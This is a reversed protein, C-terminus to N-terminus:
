VTGTLDSQSSSSSDSGTTGSGSTGSGNESSGSDSGSTGSGSQGQMQSYGGGMQPMGGQTSVQSSGGSITGAILGGALGGVLGCLLALASLAAIVSVKIGQWSRPTKTKAGPQNVYQGQQPNWNRQQNWDGQSPVQQGPAYAGQSPQAYPAHPTQQANGGAANISSEAYDGQPSALTVRPSTPRVPSAQQGAHASSAQNGPNSAFSQPAQGSQQPRAASQAPRSASQATSPTTQSQTPQQTPSQTIPSQSIPSQTTVNGGENSVPTTSVNNRTPDSM